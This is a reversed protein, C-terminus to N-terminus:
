GNKILLAAIRDLEKLNTEIALEGAEKLARINESSVDDMEASANNLEPMIRLYQDKCDVADYIQHLQYDVTEAVGSMMIDIVPRIWEVMGWKKANEYMYQRKDVGTGISLLIMESATPNIKGKDFVTKRAEAYACMAPNNAFVGGDVLPYFIGELSHIGAVEFYTPAASTARAVDRVFFDRGADVANHQTFFFAARREIDYATLLCPKLLESLKTEGFYERFYNEIESESHKEDRLGGVSKIRQWLSRSFIDRGKDIYLDVADRATFKPRSTNVDDPCLFTCTLIGGTSTGAIMDFYDALRGDPNNDLEQLKNELYVLIQGPIIGRIGGGDISLIRILSKKESM